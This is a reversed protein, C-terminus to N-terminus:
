INRVSDNVPFLGGAWLQLGMLEWFQWRRFRRPAESAERPTWLPHPPSGLLLGARGLGEGAAGM